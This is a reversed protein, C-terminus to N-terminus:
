ADAHVVTCVTISSHQNHLMPFNSHYGPSILKLWATMNGMMRTLVLLIDHTLQVHICHPTTRICASMHPTSVYLHVYWYADKHLYAVSQLMRCCCTLGGSDHTSSHLSASLQLSNGLTAHFVGCLNLRTYHRWQKWHTRNYHVHASVHMDTRLTFPGQPVFLCSDCHPLM